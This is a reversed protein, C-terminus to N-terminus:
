VPQLIVADKGAWERWGSLIVAEKEALPSDRRMLVGLTDKYPLPISHYKTHDIPGFVIGFDILGKPLLM